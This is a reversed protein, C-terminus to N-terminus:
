LEPVARVAACDVLMQAKLESDSAFKREDRVFRKLDVRVPRDYVDGKFDFLHTELTVAGDERVTPRVGVNTIADYERSGVTAVSAYVGFRPPLVGEPFSQNITPFGLRSALKKGREVTLEFGYPHGLMEEASAVDGREIAAKIRTTSIPAGDLEAEDIVLVDIDFEYCLERLRDVDGERGKGFRFDAGCCVALASLCGEGLVKRVFEECGMDAVDSFNILMYDEVGLSAILAERDSQTVLDLSGKGAARRASMDFGLVASGVSRRQAEAIAAGIVARHGLHVGDFYGLAAVTERGLPAITNHTIM